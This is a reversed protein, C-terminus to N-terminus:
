VCVIDCLKHFETRRKYELCFGFALCLSFSIVDYLTTNRHCSAVGRKAVAAYISEMLTNNKLLELINRFSEWLFKVWPTLVIRDTRDQTDEGSVTSLLLSLFIIHLLSPLM